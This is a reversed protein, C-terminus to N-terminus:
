QKTQNASSSEFFIWAKRRHHLVGHIVSVGASHHIQAVHCFLFTTLDQKIGIFTLSSQYLLTNTLSGFETLLATLLATRQLSRSRHKRSKQNRHFEVLGHNIELSQFRTVGDM